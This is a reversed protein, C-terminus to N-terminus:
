KLEGEAGQVKRDREEFHVTHIQAIRADLLMREVDRETLPESQWRHIRLQAAGVAAQLRDLERLAGTLRLDLVETFERWGDDRGARIFAELNPWGPITAIAPGPCDTTHRGENCGCVPCRM